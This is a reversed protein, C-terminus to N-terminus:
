SLVQILWNKVDNWVEEKQQERLIEHRANDYVMATVEIDAAQYNRVIGALGEGDRVVPDEAGVVFLIPLSKPHEHIRALSTVELSALAVEHLYGLSPIGGCNPDRQYATVEEPLSSIWDSETQAPFFKLNYRGFILREFLRSHHDSGFRNIAREIAFLGLRGIPGSGPPPSIAVVGTLANGLVQGLRRALLSGFSHGLVFTPLENQHHEMLSIADDVMQEFGEKPPLHAYTEDDRAFQGSGRLDCVYVNFGHHALFQAFEKYRGHHELMGHFLFCNGIANEAPVHLVHTRYGDVYTHETVNM